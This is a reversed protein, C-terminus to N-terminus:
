QKKKVQSNIARRAIRTAYITIFVTAALGVGYLAWELPTRVRDSSGLTAVNSILTGFYVYMLTGPMIGFLSAWFYASLKVSTLSYLYNSMNFPFLPSLRLFFIIKGGERGIAKYIEQFRPYKSVKHSIWEHMFYRGVLFAATSGLTAGAIVTLYGWGLGFLAGAGLTLLSGPIFLVVALAYVLLYICVAVLRYEMVLSSLWNVIAGLRERVDFIIGLVICIGIAVVLIIAKANKM